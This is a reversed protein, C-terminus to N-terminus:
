TTPPEVPPLPMEQDHTPIKEIAEHVMTLKNRVPTLKNMLREAAADSIGNGTLIQIEDHLLEVHADADKAAMEAAEAAKGIDDIKEELDELKGM